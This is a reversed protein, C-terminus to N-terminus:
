AERAKCAAAVRGLEKALGFSGLLYHFAAWAYFFITVLIGGRTAAVLTTKCSAALAPASGKPSMGPMTSMNSSSPNNGSAPEPYQPVLDMGDPAKGPQNYHHQPNMADFWYLPKRESAASQAAAVASASHGFWRHTAGAYVVGLSIAILIALIIKKPSLKM